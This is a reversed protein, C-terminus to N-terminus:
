RIPMYGCVYDSPDDLCDSTLAKNAISISVIEGCPELDNERIYDLLREGMSYFDRAKSSIRMITRVCHVPEYYDIYPSETTSLLHAHEAYIVYGPDVIRKRSCGLEGSVGSFMTVPFLGAWEKMLRVAAEEELMQGNVCCRLRYMAPRQEIWCDQWRGELEGLLAKQRELCDLVASDFRMRALTKQAYSDIAQEMDMVSAGNILTSAAKIPVGVSAYYRLFIVRQLDPFHYYRYGNHEQSIRPLVGQKEYMRISQHSVGTLACIDKLSFRLDVELEDETMRKQKQEEM